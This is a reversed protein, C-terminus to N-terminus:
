PRAEEFAQGFGHDAFAPEGHRVQDQLRPGGDDVHAAGFPCHGGGHRRHVRLQLKDADVPIRGEHVSRARLVAQRIQAESGRPDVRDVQRFVARVRDDIGKGQVIDIGPGARVVARHRRHQFPMEGRQFGAAQEEHAVEGHRALMHDQQFQGALRGHAIAAPRLREGHRLQQDVIGFGRAKAGIAVMATKVEFLQRRAKRACPEEAERGFPSILEDQAFVVPHM